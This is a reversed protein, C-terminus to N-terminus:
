RSITQASHVASVRDSLDCGAAAAEGADSADGADTANGVNGANRARLQRIASGLPAAFM